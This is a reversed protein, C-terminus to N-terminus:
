AVSVARGQLYLPRTQDFSSWGQHAWAGPAVGAVALAAGAQMVQRRQM